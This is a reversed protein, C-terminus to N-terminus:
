CRSNHRNSGRSPGQPNTQDGSWYNAYYDQCWETANGLMDYLGYANPQKLGVPHTDGKSDDYQKESWRSINYYQSVDCGASTTYNQGCNGGYWALKEDINFM